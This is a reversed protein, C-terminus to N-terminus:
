GAILYMKPQRYVVHYTRGYTQIGSPYREAELWDKVAELAQEDYRFGTVIGRLYEPIAPFKHDRAIRLHENLICSIAHAHPNGYMSYVGTLYAMQLPTYTQPIDDFENDKIVSIGVPDYLEDLFELIRYTSAGSRKLQDVVVKATDNCATLTPLLTQQEWQARHHNEMANFKTVYAATFLIGKEGILKNAVMECGMKSLLYCPMLKNQSNYYTSQLFFNSEGFNPLGGSGIIECYKSIDRLLHDHRKGIMEAVERSDVYYGNNHNILNLVNYM